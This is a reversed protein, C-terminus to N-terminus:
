LIKSLVNPALDYIDKIRRRLSVEDIYKLKDLIDKQYKLDINSLINQILLEKEDEEYKKTNIKIRHYSELSQALNLFHNELFINSNNITNSFM